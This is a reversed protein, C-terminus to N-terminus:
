TPRLVAGDHWEGAYHEGCAGCTDERFSHDCENCAIVLHRWDDGTRALYTVQREARADGGDDDGCEGNAVLFLCEVCLPFTITEYPM